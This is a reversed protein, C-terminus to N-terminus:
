IIFHFPDSLSLGHDSQPIIGDGSLSFSVVFDRLIDLTGIL